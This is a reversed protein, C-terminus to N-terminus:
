ESGTITYDECVSLHVASFSYSVVVTDAGIVLVWDDRDKLRSAVEM